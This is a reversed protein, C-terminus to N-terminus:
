NYENKMSSRDKRRCIEVANYLIINTKLASINFQERKNQALEERRRSIFNEIRKYYLNKVKLQIQM